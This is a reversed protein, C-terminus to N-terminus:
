GLLRDHRGSEAMPLNSENWTSSDIESTPYPKIHSHLVFRPGLEPTFHWDYLNQERYGYYDLISDACNADFYEALTRSVYTSGSKMSCAVLPGLNSPNM